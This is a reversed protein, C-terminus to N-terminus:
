SKRESGGRIGDQRYHITDKRFRFAWNRIGENGSIHTDVRPRKIGEQVRANVKASEDLLLAIKRARSHTVTNKDIM